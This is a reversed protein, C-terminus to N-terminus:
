AHAHVGNATGNLGLRTRRDEEAAAAADRNDKPPEDPNANPDQPSGPKANKGDPSPAPQKPGLGHKARIENEAVEYKAEDELVSRFNRGKSSCAAVRSLTGSAIETQEAQAEQYPNVAPPGKLGIGVRYMGCLDAGLLEREQATLKDPTIDGRLVGWDIAMRILPYTHHELLWERKREVKRHADLAGLRGSAFTTQSYDGSYEDYRLGHGRSGRRGQERNVAEFQQGPVTPAIPTPPATGKKRFFVQLGRIVSVPDGAADVAGYEGPKGDRRQFMAANDAEMCIGMSSVLQALLMTSDYLGDQTRLTKMVSVWTPVGRLQGVRRKEFVLEFVDSSLRVLDPSGFFGIAAQNMGPFAGWGLDKPNNRLVYYATTRGFRDYEVGQRVFNGAGPLDAPVIGSLELPIRDADVLECAPMAPLGKFAPAITRLVGIEGGVAIERLALQQQEGMSLTRDPDVRRLVTKLVPRIQDNLWPVGTDPDFDDLGAGVVADVVTWAAADVLENNDALDRARSRVLNLGGFREAAANPGLPQPVFDPDRRSVRAADYAMPGGAGGVRWGVDMGAPAITRAFWARVSGLTGFMAAREPM